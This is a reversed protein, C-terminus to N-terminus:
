NKRKKAALVGGLASIALASIAVLPATVGTDVNKGGDNNVGPGAGSTTDNGGSTTDSDSTTGNGGNDDSTPSDSTAGNDDDCDCDDNDCDSDDCECDTCDDNSVTDSLAIAFIAWNVESVHVTFNAFGDVVVVDQSTWDDNFTWEGSILNWSSTWEGDFWWDGNIIHATRGNHAAGIYFPFTIYGDYQSEHWDFSGDWSVLYQAGFAEDFGIGALADVLADRQIDNWIASSTSVYDGNPLEIGIIQTHGHRVQAYLVDNKFIDVIYHRSFLGPESGGWAPEAVFTVADSGIWAAWDFDPLTEFTYNTPFVTVTRTFDLGNVLNAVYEADDADFDGILTFEVNVTRSATIEGTVRHRLSIEATQTGPAITDISVNLWHRSIDVDADDLLDEILLRLDWSVNWFTDQSYINIYFTDPLIDLTNANVNDNGGGNGNDDCDCDINGCNGTDTCFCNSCGLTRQPYTSLFEIDLGDIPSFDSIMNWVLNLHHLNVMNSLPSIDTIYNNALQLGELNILNALASIDNISNESLELWWLNTLSALPSIDSVNNNWLDLMGLDTLGALPSIDTIVNGNLFLGELNILGALQTIDNINNDWLDLWTLNTLSALPTLDSINNSSLLLTQLDSLDELVSIDTINNVALYLHTLGTLNSLLSIDSMDNQGLDLETLNTLDAIPSIDSINNGWLYLWALNTHGALPTLDSINNGSLSIWWLDTLGALPTLDSINNNDTLFTTLNTLNEIGELSSINMDWAELFTVTDLDAQTVTDTVNVGLEEAVAQALNADIFIQNIPTPTSINASAGLPIALFSLLLALSLVLALKSTLKQKM